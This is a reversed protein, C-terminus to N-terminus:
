RIGKSMWKGRFYRFNFFGGRIIWDIIAHAIWVGLLGLGFYTGLIYAGLVRGIWMSASSVIM